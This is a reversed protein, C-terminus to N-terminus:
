QDAQRELRQKMCSMCVEYSFRVHVYAYLAAHRFCQLARIRAVRVQLGTFFLTNTSTNYGTPFGVGYHQGKALSLAGLSCEVSVQSPSGACLSQVPPCWSRYEKLHRSYM